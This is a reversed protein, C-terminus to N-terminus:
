IGAVRPGACHPSTHKTAAPQHSMAPDKAMYVFIELCLFHWALGGVWESGGVVLFYTKVLFLSLNSGQGEPRAANKELGAYLPACVNVNKRYKGM